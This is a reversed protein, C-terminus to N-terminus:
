AATGFAALQDGGPEVVDGEDHHLRWIAILAMPVMVFGGIAVTKDRLLDVSHAKPTPPRGRVHPTSCM